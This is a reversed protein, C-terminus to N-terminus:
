ARDRSGSLWSRGGFHQVPARSAGHVSPHLRQVPERAGHLGGHAWSSFRLWAVPLIGPLGPQERPPPATATPCSRAARDGRAFSSRMGRRRGPRSTESSPSRASAIADPSRRSARSRSSKLIDGLRVLGGQGFSGPSAQHRGTEAAALRPPSRPHRLPPGQGQVPRRAAGGISANVTEGMTAMSIGLDAAKNRDPVVQVEPMGVQYDSDLDTM